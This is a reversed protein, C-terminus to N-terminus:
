YTAAGFSHDIGGPARSDEVPAPSEVCGPFGIVTILIVLIILITLTLLTVLAILTILTILTIVV